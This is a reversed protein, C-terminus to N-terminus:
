LAKVNDIREDEVGMQTWDWDDAQGGSLMEAVVERAEDENEADLDLEM